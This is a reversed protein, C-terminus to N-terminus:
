KIVRPIAKSPEHERRISPMREMYTARFRVILESISALCHGCRHNLIVVLELQPKSLLRDAHEIRTETTERFVDVFDTFDDVEGGGTLRCGTAATVCAGPHGVRTLVFSHPQVSGHVGGASSGASGVPLRM